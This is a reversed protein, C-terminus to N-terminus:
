DTGRANGADLKKAAKVLRKRARFLKVKITNENIGTMESIETVTKGEVEKQFLLLREQASVHALLKVLLDRQEARELADPERDGSAPRERNLDEETAYLDGEYVVRRSKLRRLYDYSENLAIRYIWTSLRARMDFKNLNFFIKAFVQQALDEADMRRRVMRHVVSFVMNQHRQVIEAYAQEDGAQARRVIDAESANEFSVHRNSAAPGLHPM